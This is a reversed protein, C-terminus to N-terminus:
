DRQIVRLQRIQIGLARPDGDPEVVQGVELSLTNEGARVAEAPVAIRDPGRWDTRLVHDNLRVTIAQDGSATRAGTADMALTLPRSAEVQFAATAVPRATWQWVQGHLVDAAHWGDVARVAVEHATDDDVPGYQGQLLPAGAAAMTCVASTAARRGEAAGRVMWAAPATGASV